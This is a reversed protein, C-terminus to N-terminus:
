SLGRIVEDVDEDAEDGPWRGFIAAVGTKPGQPLRLTRADLTAFLPRPMAEWVSTDGTALELRDAELRLVRGSPRFKALGSVVVQRGLLGGLRHFDDDSIIVGRVAGSPLEVEFMRNSHKLLDLKGAIRARQDGPISRRLRRLAEVTASEITRSHGNRLEFSDLDHALVKTFGTLTDILGDDYRDSDARGSLADDLAEVFLDICTADRALPAFLDAQAFKEPAVVGLPPAILALQTSGPRLEVDFSAARELWAPLQGPARSRGEMRLRVAQQVADVLPDLLDRLLAADVRLGKAMPGTLHIITESM